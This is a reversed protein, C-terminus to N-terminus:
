NTLYQAPSLKSELEFVVENIMKSRENHPIFASKFGNIIITHINDINLNFSDFALKYEDTLTTNSM